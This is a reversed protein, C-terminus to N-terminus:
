VSPEDRWIRGAALRLISTLGMGLLILLSGLVIPVVIVALLGVAYIGSNASHNLYWVTHDDLVAYYDEYRSSGLYYAIGFISIVNGPPQVKPVGSENINLEEMGDPVLTAPKGDAQWCQDMEETNCSYYNGNGAAIFVTKYASGAIAKPPEPPEPLQQWSEQPTFAKNVIVLSLSPLLICVFFSGLVIGITLRRRRPVDKVRTLLVNVGVGIWVSFIILGGTLFAQQMVLKLRLSSAIPPNVAPLYTAVSLVTLLICSLITLVIYPFYQRRKM